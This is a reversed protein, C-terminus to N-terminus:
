WRMRQWGKEAQGWDKEAEPDKGILWSKSMLHGFYQLKLKLMLGELSCESNIEKLISEKSELASELIKELVVTWFHWNKPAWYPKSVRGTKHFLFSLSDSPSMWVASLHCGVDPCADRSCWGQGSLCKMTNKQKFWLTADQSMHM